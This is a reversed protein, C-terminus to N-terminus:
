LAEKFKRFIKAAQKDGKSLAQFYVHWTDLIQEFTLKPYLTLVDHKMAHFVDKLPKNEAYSDVFAFFLLVKKPFDNLRYFAKGDKKIRFVRKGENEKLIRNIKSESIEKRKLERVIENHQKTGDKLFDFLLREEKTALQFNNSM